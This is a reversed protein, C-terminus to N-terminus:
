HKTSNTLFFLANLADKMKINTLMPYHSHVYDQFDDDDLPLQEGKPRAFISIKKLNKVFRLQAKGIWGPLSSNGFEYLEDDKLDSEKNYQDEILFCETTEQVTLKPTRVNTTIANRTFAPISWEINNTSFYLPEGNESVIPQYSMVSQFTYEYLGLLTLDVHKSKKSNSVKYLHSDYDGFEINDIYKSLGQDEYFKCLLERIMKSYRAKSYRLPLSEPDLKRKEALEERKKYCSSIYNNIREVGSSMVEYDMYKVDESNDPINLSLLTENTKPNILTVKTM